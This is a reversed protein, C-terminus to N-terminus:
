FALVGRIARPLRNRLPCDGYFNDELIHWAEWFVSFEAAEETSPAEKDFYWRTGYGAAFSSLIVVSAIALIFFIKM